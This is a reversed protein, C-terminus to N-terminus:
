GGGAKGTRACEQLRRLASCGLAPCSAGFIRIIAHMAAIPRQSRVESLESAKARSQMFILSSDATFCSAFRCRMVSRVPSTSPNFSNCVSM